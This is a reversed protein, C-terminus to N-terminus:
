LPFPNNNYLTKKTIICESYRLYSKQFLCLSFCGRFPSSKRKKRVIDDKSLTGETIHIRGSEKHKAKNEESVPNYCIGTITRMEM